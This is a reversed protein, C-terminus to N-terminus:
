NSENGSVWLPFERTYKEVFNGGGLNNWCSLFFDEQFSILISSIWDEELLCVNFTPMRYDKPLVLMGNLILSALMKGSLHIRNRTLSKSFASLMTLDIACGWWIIVLGHYGPFIHWDKKRFRYNIFIYSKEIYIELDCCCVVTVKFPGNSRKLAFDSLTVSPPVYYM